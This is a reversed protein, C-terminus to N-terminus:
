ENSRFLEEIAKEVYYLANNFGKAEDYFSQSMTFRDAEAKKPMREMVLLKLALKAEGKDNPDTCCGCGTMGSLINDVERSM